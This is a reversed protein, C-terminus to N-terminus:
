NSGLSNHASLGADKEDSNKNTETKGDLLKGEESRSTQRTSSSSQHFISHPSNSLSESTDKNKAKKHEPKNTKEGKSKDEDERSRKARGFEDVEDEQNESDEGSVKQTINPIFCQKLERTLEKYFANMRLCNEIINEDIQELPEVNLSHALDSRDQKYYRFYSKLMPFMKDLINERIKKVKSLDSESLPMVNIDETMQLINQCCNYKALNIYVQEEGETNKIITELENTELVIYDITDIYEDLTNVVLQQGSQNGPRKGHGQFDEGENTSQKYANIKQKLTQIKNSKFLEFCESLLSEDEDHHDYCYSHTFDNRFRILEKVLVSPLNGSYHTSGELQMLENFSEENDRVFTLLGAFRCVSQVFAKRKVLSSSFFSDVDNFKGILKEIVELRGILLDFLKGALM